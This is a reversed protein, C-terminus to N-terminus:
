VLDPGARDVPDQAHLAGPALAGAVPLAVHRPGAPFAPGEVGGAKPEGAPAQGVRPTVRGPAPEAAALVRVVAHVGALQGASEEVVVDVARRCAQAQALAALHPLQPQ